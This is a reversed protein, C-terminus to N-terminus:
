PAVPCAPARPRMRRSPCTNFHSNEVAHMGPLAGGDTRRQRLQAPEMLSIREHPHSRACTRLVCRAGRRSKKATGPTTHTHTHTRTHTRTHTSTCSVGCEGQDTCHSSWCPPNNTAELQWQAPTNASCALGRTASCEAKIANVNKYRKARLSM